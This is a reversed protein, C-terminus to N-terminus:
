HDQDRETEPVNIEPVSHTVGRPGVTDEHNSNWETYFSRGRVEDVCGM